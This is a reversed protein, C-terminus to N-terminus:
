AAHRVSLHRSATAPKSSSAGTKAGPKGPDQRFVVVRDHIILVIDARGDGDVDGITMDRPEIVRRRQSVNKREFIKFTIAPILEPDGAYTAIELSQEGVDSFVVDPLRRRQRRRHGPRRAPGRQAEIRLHRDDQAATGQPRDPARRISRHRRDLLDDRGDGDLDAVHM